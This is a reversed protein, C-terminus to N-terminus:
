QISGEPCNAIYDAFRMRQDAECHLKHIADSARTFGRGVLQGNIYVDMIFDEANYDQLTVATLTLGHATHHPLSVDNEVYWGQESSLHM